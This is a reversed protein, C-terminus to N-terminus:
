SDDGKFELMGMDYAYEDALSEDEDEGTGCETGRCATAESVDVSGDSGDVLLEEVELEFQVDDEDDDQLQLRRMGTGEVESDLRVGNDFADYLASALTDNDACANDTMETVMDFLAGPATSNDPIEAMHKTWNLSVEFTLLYNNASIGDEDNAQDQLKREHDHQKLALEADKLDEEAAHLALQLERERKRQASVEATSLKRGSALSEKKQQFFTAAEAALKRSRNM